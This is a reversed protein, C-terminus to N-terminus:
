SGSSQAGDLQRELREATRAAAQRAPMTWTENEAQQKLKAIQQRVREPDNTAARALARESSVERLVSGEVSGFRVSGPPSGRAGAPVRPRKCSEHETTITYVRKTLGSFRQHDTLKPVYAHGCKFRKLRGLKELEAGARDIAHATDDGVEYPFLDLMLQDPEWRLWGGDDAECWLGIYLLRGFHTLGRLKADRFFEPKVQRTRM